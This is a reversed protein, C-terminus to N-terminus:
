EVRGAPVRVQSARGVAVPAVVLEVHRQAVKQQIPIYNRGVALFIAVYIDFSGASLLPGGGFDVTGGFFGAVIVNGSADAAVGRSRQDSADGFRQSWDHVMGQSWAPPALLLAALIWGLFFLCILPLISQLKM